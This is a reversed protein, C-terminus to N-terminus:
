TTEVKWSSEDKEGGIKTLEEEETEDFKPIEPEEKSTMILM